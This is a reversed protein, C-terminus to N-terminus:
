YSKLRQGAHRVNGPIAKRALDVLENEDTSRQKPTLWTPTQSFIRELEDLHEASIDGDRAAHRALPMDATAHRVRRRSEKRSMLLIRELFLATSRTGISSALRRKEFEEVLDLNRGYAQRLTRESALLHATLEQDSLQWPPVLESTDM